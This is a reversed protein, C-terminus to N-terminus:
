SVATQAEPPAEPAAIVGGQLQSDNLQQVFSAPANLQELHHKTHSPHSLKTAAFATAFVAVCGVAIVRKASAVRARTPPDLLARRSSLATAV